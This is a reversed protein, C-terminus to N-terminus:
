YIGYPTEQYKGALNSLRGRSELLSSHEVRTPPNEQGDVSKVEQVVKDILVGVAKRLSSKRTLGYSLYMALELYCLKLFLPDWTAVVKNDFVYTLRVADASDADILLKGEAIDYGNKDIRLDGESKINVVRIYDVPLAYEDTYDFVPTGTRSLEIRKKAFNWVNTRLVARRVDDYYRACLSETATTPSELNAIPKEGLQGLALNCVAVATISKSM